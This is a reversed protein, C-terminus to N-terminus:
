KDFSKTVNAGVTSILMAVTIMLMEDWNTAYFVSLVYVLQIFPYKSFILSFLAIFIGALTFDSLM